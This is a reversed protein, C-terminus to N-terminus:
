RRANRCPDGQRLSAAGACATQEGERVAGVVCQKHRRPALAGVLPERKYRARASDAGRRPRAQAPPTASPLNVKTSLAGHICWGCMRQACRLACRELAFALCSSEPSSIRGRVPSRLTASFPNPLANFRRKKTTSPMNPRSRSRSAIAPTRSRATGLTRGWPYAPPDVLFRAVAGCLVLASAREPHTAAFVVAMPGGESIGFLTARESGAAHMVARVDDIREEIAVNAQVRDSMGTGRKDFLILRTFAALRAFFRAIAAVEWTVELHSVFGPIFVLDVPGEGVVQYAINVDGSRAYRTEPAVVAGKGVSTM